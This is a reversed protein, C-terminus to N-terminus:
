ASKENTMPGQDSVFSDTALTCGKPELDIVLLFMAFYHMMVPDHTVEAWPVGPAQPHIKLM